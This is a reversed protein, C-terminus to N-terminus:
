GPRLGHNLFWVAVGSVSVWLWVPLTWRAWARHRGFRGRLALVFTVAIPPLMVMAAVTHPILIGLYAARLWGAGWFAVSGVRAHYELYSALFAASVALAGTMLGRHAGISRGRRRPGAGRIAM